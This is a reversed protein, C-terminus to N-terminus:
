RNGWRAVAVLTDPRYRRNYEGGDSALVKVKIWYETHTVENVRCAIGFNFLIFDGVVLERASIAPHEGVGQLKITKQKKPNKM